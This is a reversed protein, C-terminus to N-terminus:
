PHSVFDRITGIVLENQGLLMHGGSPVTLLAANPIRKSMAQANQYLAMPDDVASVVLTPAQINGFETESVAPNSVFMDWIAGDGRRSVPLVTQVLSDVLEKESPSLSYGVPVGMTGYLSTRAYTTIMWFVFDSHFMTQAVAQPPLTVDVTGPANPSVLVLAKVRDPYRAALEMASTAGASHAIVTVQNLGLHDLLCVYLAAQKQPSPDQPLPSQLYGYRSIFIQDYGEPFIGNVNAIGQDIGGFIGHIVLLPEGTGVRLYEIEGCDSAYIQTPLSDIANHFVFIEKRYKLGLALFIIGLLIGISIFFIALKNGKGIKM